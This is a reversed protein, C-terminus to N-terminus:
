SLFDKMPRFGLRSLKQFSFIIMRKLYSDKNQRGPLFKSKVRIARRILKKTYLNPDPLSLPWVQYHSSSNGGRSQRRLTGSRQDVGGGSNRPKPQPPPPPYVPHPAPLSDMSRHRNLPFPLCIRTLARTIAMCLLIPLYKQFETLLPNTACIFISM